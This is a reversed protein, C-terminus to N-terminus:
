ASKVNPRLINYPCVHKLSIIQRVNQDRNGNRKKSPAVLLKFQEKQKPIFTVVFKSERCVYIVSTSFFVTQPVM